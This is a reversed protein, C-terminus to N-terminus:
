AFSTLPYYLRTDHCFIVFLIHPDQRCPFCVSMHKV